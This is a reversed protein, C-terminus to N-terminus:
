AAFTRRECGLLWDQSINIFKNGNFYVHRLICPDGDQDVLKVDYYQGPLINTVDFSGPTQLIDDDGLLDDHWSDDSSQSVYVQDIVYGSYNNLQLSYRSAQQGFASTAIGALVAVLPLVQALKSSITKM